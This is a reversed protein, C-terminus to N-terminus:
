NNRIKPPIDHTSDRTQLFVPDRSRRFLPRAWRRKPVLIAVLLACCLIGTIAEPVSWHSAIRYMNRECEPSFHAAFILCM